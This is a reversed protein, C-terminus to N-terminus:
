SSFFFLICFADMVINVCWHLIVSPLISKARWDVWGFFLGAFFSAPIELPPKGLHVLTYPINQLLIAAPMGAGKMGMMLFGRFFFETALMFLLILLEYAILNAVGLRAWGFIPYYNHFAPLTAALFIFPTSILLALTVFPLQKKAEGPQLGFDPIRLRFLLLIVIPILLLFLFDRALPIQQLFGTFLYYRALLLASAAALTAIARRM